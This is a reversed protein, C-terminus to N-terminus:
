SIVSYNIVPNKDLEELQNMPKRVWINVVKRNKMHIFCDITSTILQNIDATSFAPRAGKVTFIIRTICKDLSDAHFTTTCPFVTGQELIDVIEDSRSEGVVVASPNERLAVQFLKKISYDDNTLYAINIPLYLEPTDEISILNRKDEIRYNSMYKLLTTKGSGTEGFIFVSHNYAMEQITKIQNASAGISNIYGDFVKTAAESRVLQKRLAIIPREVGSANLSGHAVNFRVSECSYDLIANKPDFKSKDLTSSYMTMEIFIDIYWNYVARLEQPIIINISNENNNKSMSIRDFTIFIDSVPLKLINDFLGLPSSAVRKIINSAINYNITKGEIAKFAIMTLSRLKVADKYLNNKTALTSTFTSFLNNNLNVREKENNLYTLDKILTNRALEVTMENKLDEM